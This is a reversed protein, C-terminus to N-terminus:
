CGIMEEFRNSGACAPEALSVRDLCRRPRIEV